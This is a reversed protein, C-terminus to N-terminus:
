HLTGARAERRRLAAEPTAVWRACCADVAALAPLAVAFERTLAATLSAYDLAGSKWGRVPWAEWRGGTLRSPTLISIGFWPQWLQLHLLNRGLFYVHFPGAPDFVRAEWASLPNGCRGGDLREVVIRDRPDHPRVPYPRAASAATRPRAPFTSISARM